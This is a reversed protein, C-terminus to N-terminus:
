YEGKELDVDSNLHPWTSSLPSPRQHSFTGQFEGPGALNPYPVSCSSHPSLSRINNPLQSLCAPSMSHYNAGPAVSAMYNGQKPITESSHVMSLPIPRLKAVAVSTLAFRNLGQIVVNVPQQGLTEWHPLLPSPTCPM